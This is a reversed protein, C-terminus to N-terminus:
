FKARLEVVKGIITIPLDKIEKNSYFMPKYAPNISYLFIGDPTKKIRKCTANDGNVMVVAIEDNEVNAQQRVIVIDGDAIRPSMSHGSVRLAFYKGDKAMEPTIEEIDIIDEIAEIPIGAAVHGLVPIQVGKPKLDIGDINDTYFYSVPIDLFDAIKKATTPLPATGTKKWRSPLSRSIGIKDCVFSVTFGNKKCISEFKQYFDM